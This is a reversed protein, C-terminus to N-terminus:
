EVLIKKRIEKDGSKMSLLYLGSSLGEDIKINVTTGASVGGGFVIRGNTDYLYLEEIDQKSEVTLLRAPGIPNPYVKINGEELDATTSIIVNFETCYEDFCDFSNNQIILCATYTGSETYTHIADPDSSVNGDGFAYQLSEINGTSMNTFSVVNETQQSSYLADFDTCPDVAVDLCATAQCSDTFVTHCVNYVAVSDFTFTFTPVDLISVINNITWSQSTIPESTFSQDTFIATLGDVEVTFDSICIIPTCDETELSFSGSCYEDTVSELGLTYANGNSQVAFNQFLDTSVVEEFTGFSVLLSDEVNQQLDILFYVSDNVTCSDTVTVAVSLDCTLCYNTLISLTDGCTDDSSDLLIITHVLSDGYVPLTLTLSDREFATLEGDYYLDFTPSTTNEALEITLLSSDGLCAAFGIHDIVIRCDNFCKPVQIDAGVTCSQDINDIIAISHVLSDGLIPVYVLNAGDGDAYDALDYYFGDIFISYDESDSYQEDFRVAVIVTSDAQCGELEEPTDPFAELYDGTILQLDINSVVCPTVCSDVTFLLTDICVPNLADAITFQYTSGDALFVGAYITTSDESDYFLVDPGLPQGNLGLTFGIPLPSPNFISLEYPKTNNNFCTDATAISLELDCTLEVCKPAFFVVRANCDGSRRDIIEVSHLEDDGEIQFAGSNNGDFDYNFPGGPVITDDVFIEYGQPSGNVDIFSYFIPISNDECSALVALNVTDLVENNVDYLELPYAGAPLVPILYISGNPRLGSDFSNAPDSFSRIGLLGMTVWQFLVDDGSAVTITENQFGEESLSVVLTSISGTGVQLNFIDCPDECNRVAIQTSASCGTTGIDRVSFTHLSGDGIIDFAVSATGNEDLFITDLTFAGDLLVVIGSDTPSIATINLTVEVLSDIDCRGTPVAEVNIACPFTGSCNIAQVPLSITCDPNVADVVAIEHELNDGPLDFVITTFGIDEYQYATDTLVVGDVSIYFGEPQVQTHEFSIAIPSSQSLPCNAIINGSMGVGNPGGNTSSYYGKIGPNKLNIQYIAGSDLVGSDWSDFGVGLDSTTSNGDSTWVFNIEDGLRVIRNPPFFENERVEIIHQESIAEDISMNDLFCAAACDQTVFTFIETCLDSFPTEVRITHQLGDGPVALNLNLVGDIAFGNLNLPTNDLFVRVSDNTNYTDQISLAVNVDDNEFCTNGVTVNLNLDCIRVEKTKFANCSDATMIFLTVDYTAPFDYTHTANKLTDTNGDGFDWMRTVVSDGPAVTTVDLFQFTLGQEIIIFEAPCQASLVTAVSVFCGIMWSRRLNKVIFKVM